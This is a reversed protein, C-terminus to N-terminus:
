RAPESRRASVLQAAGLLFSRKRVDVFGAREFLARLADEDPLYSASAPLYRYAAADSMLRGILPVVREFWVRHLAALLASRPRDVEIFAVRAGPRLVRAAEVLASEISVFNRLAFGCTLGDCSASPFPLAEASARTLSGTVGRRRAVALMGASVDVGVGHVGRRGLECLLDGTGCALDIVQATPEVELADIAARKWRRHLGVTILRNLGDYRPAIRDFMAEVAQRKDDDRPLDVAVGTPESRETNRDGREIDRPLRSSM